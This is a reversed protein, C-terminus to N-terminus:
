VLKHGHLNELENIIEDASRTDINKGLCQDRYQEFSMYKIQQMSMYPLMSVWQKRIMEDREKERGTKVFQCFSKIDMKMILDVNNYRRHLFELLDIESYDAIIVSFFKEV